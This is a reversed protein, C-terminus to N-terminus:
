YPDGPYKIIEFFLLLEIIIYIKLYLLNYLNHVNFISKCGTRGMQSMGRKVLYKIQGIQGTLSLICALDVWEFTFPVFTISRSAANM